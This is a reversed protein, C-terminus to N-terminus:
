STLNFFSGPYLNPSPIYPMVESAARAQVLQSRYSEILADLNQPDAGEEMHQSVANNKIRNLQGILSDLLHLKDISIGQIGEPAPVGSVYRLHSFVLSSSNVPLSMRGDTTSFHSLSPVSLNSIGRLM